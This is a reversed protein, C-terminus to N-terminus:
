GSSIMNGNPLSMYESIVQWREDSRVEETIIDTLYIILRDSITRYFSDFMADIDDVAAACYQIRLERAPSIAMSTLQAMVAEEEGSQCRLYDHFGPIVWMAVMMPEASISALEANSEERRGLKHLTYARFAHYANIDGGVARYQGTMRYASEYDGGWIRAAIAGEHYYGLTPSKSIAVDYWRYAEEYQGVNALTMAFNFAARGDPDNLQVSKRANSEWNAWEGRDFAVRALTEYANSNSPDLEIAKAAYELAQDYLQDMADPPSISGKLWSVFGLEAWGKSFLPDIAVAHELKAIGMEIWGDQALTSRASERELQYRHQLFLTYAEVSQSPPREISAIEDPRLSTEMAGAVQLAVETEITFIDDLRFEYSEAWLYVEDRARILEANIKVRNDAFRVSGTLVNEVGLENAIERLSKESDAYRLVSSRSIVRMAKIKALQNLIAEHIGSAFYAKDPDPSKNTLPLVAISNDSVRSPALIRETPEPVFPSASRTLSNPELVIVGLVLLLVGLIIPAPRLLSRPKLAPSVFDEALKGSVDPNGRRLPAAPLEAVPMTLRYGTKPVTEIYKRGTAGGGLASRLLSISRSLAEDGSYTDKWAEALLEDRTVVEGARAALLQLVQMSKPELRKEGEPGSITNRSPFVTYGDLQFGTSLSM